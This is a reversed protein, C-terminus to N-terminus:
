SALPRRMLASPMRTVNLAAQVSVEKDLGGVPVAIQRNGPQGNGTTLTRIRGAGTPWRASYRQKLILLTVYLAKQFVLNVASFSAIFQGLM